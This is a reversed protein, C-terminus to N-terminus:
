LLRDEHENKDDCPPKHVHRRLTANCSQEYIETLHQAKNMMRHDKNPSMMGQGGAIDTFKKHVVELTEDKGGKNLMEMQIGKNASGISDLQLPTGRNTSILM